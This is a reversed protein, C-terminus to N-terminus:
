YFKLKTLEVLSFKLPTFEIGSDDDPNDGAKTEDLTMSMKKKKIARKNSSNCTRYLMNPIDISFKLKQISRLITKLVFHIVGIFGGVGSLVEMVTYNSRITTISEPDILLAYAVYPYFDGAPTGIYSEKLTAEYYSSNFNGLSNSLFSNTGIAHNTKLQIFNFFAIDPNINSYYNYVV